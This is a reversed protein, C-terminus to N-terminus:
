AITATNGTLITALWKLTTAATYICEVRVRSGIKENTTSFAISSAGANNKTIIDTSGVISSNVNAICAMEYVLGAAKTPLTLAAAATVIQLTGSEAVTLTKDAAVWIENRFPRALAGPVGGFVLEDDFIFQRSLRNRAKQDLNILKSAKLLGGVLIVSEKNDAVQVNNLMSTGRMLVGRAEASTDGGDPDYPIWRDASNKALVLGARLTTTPTNAADVSAAALTPNADFIRLNEHGWWITVDSATQKASIGPEMDLNAFAGM